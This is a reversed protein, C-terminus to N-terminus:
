ESKTRTVSIVRGDQVEVQVLNPRSFYSLTSRGSQETIKISPPGFRRVMEEYPIGAQIRRPDEYFLRLPPKPSHPAGAPTPSPKTQVASDSKPALSGDLGVTQNISAPTRSVQITASGTAQFTRSRDRSSRCGSACLLALLVPALCKM